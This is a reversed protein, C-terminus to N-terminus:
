YKSQSALFEKLSMKKKAMEEDTKEDGESGEWDEESMGADAANMKDAYEDAASEEMEEEAAEHEESEEDEMKPKGMMEVSIAKPKFKSGEEGMLFEKLMELVHKKMEIEKNM